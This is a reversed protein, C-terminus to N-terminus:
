SRAAARIVDAVADPHEHPLLHGAGAVRRIRANPIAAALHDGVEPKVVRDKTGVLVTTPATVDGLHEEVGPSERLLARQEALFSRWTPRRRWSRVEDAVAASHAPSLRGRRLRLWPGVFRPALYRFLGLAFLPGVVPLGLVADGTTLAETTGAAAVLVLAAVRDPHRQAFSLAAGGGWSHGVVTARDIGQEDLLRALEDANDAFGGPQERSADGYGSRDVAIVRHTRALRKTVRRWDRHSGPQGHLLVVAPGDGAVHARM